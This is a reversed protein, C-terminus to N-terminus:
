APRRTGGQRRRIRIFSYRIVSGTAAYFLANFAGIFLATEVIYPVTVTDPPYAKSAGIEGIVGPLNLLFSSTVLWDPLDVHWGPMMQVTLVCAFQVAGIVFGALMLYFLYRPMQMPKM